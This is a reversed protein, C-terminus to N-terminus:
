SRLPRHYQVPSPTPSCTAALSFFKIFALSLKAYFPKYSLRNSRVGSLRSTPPELGSLGMQATAILRAFILIHNANLKCYAFRFKMKILRLGHALRLMAFGLPVTSALVYRSFQM